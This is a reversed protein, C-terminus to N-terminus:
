RLLNSSTEVLGEMDQSMAYVGHHVAYLSHLFRTMAEKEMVEACPTESELEMTLNPETVAFENEVEALFINLAVRVNEKDAMPVACVAHAERPIANHLNGGDIHSLRLDYQKMLIVLFRDLLKNANARKKNIDDGSHGGTM